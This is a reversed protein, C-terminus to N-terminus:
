RALANKTNRVQKERSLFVIIIRHTLSAGQVVLDAVSIYGCVGCPGNWFSNYQLVCLISKVYLSNCEWVHRGRISSDYRRRPSRSRGTFQYGQHVRTRDRCCHTTLPRRRLALLYQRPATIRCHAPYIPLPWPLKSWVLPSALYLM